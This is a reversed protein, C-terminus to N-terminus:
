ETGMTVTFRIPPGFQALTALQAGDLAFQCNAEGETDTLGAIFVDFYADEVGHLGRLTGERPKLKDLLRNVVNAVDAHDRDIVLCWLGTKNVYKRGTVPATRTEGKRRGDTPAIGLEKSM